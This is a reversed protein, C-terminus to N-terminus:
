TVIFEANFVMSSYRPVGFSRHLQGAWRALRGSTAGRGTVPSRQTSSQQQTRSSHRRSRPLQARLTLERRARAGPYRSLGM